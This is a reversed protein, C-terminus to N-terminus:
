STEMYIKKVLVCRNWQSPAASESAVLVHVYDPASDPWLLRSEEQNVGLNALAHAVKNCIRPVYQFEFSQFNLAVFLRMDRYLIGEPVLDYEPSKLARVLNQSDTEFVIHYFLSHVV